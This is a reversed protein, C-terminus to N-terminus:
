PRRSPQFACREFDKGDSTFYEGEVQWANHQDVHKFMRQIVECGEPHYQSMCTEGHDLVDFDGGHYPGSLYVRHRSPQDPVEVFARGDFTSYHGRGPWKYASRSLEHMTAVVMCGDLRCAPGHSLVRWDTSSGPLFVLHKSHNRDM